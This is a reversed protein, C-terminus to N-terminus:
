AQRGVIVEGGGGLAATEARYSEPLGPDSGTLPNEILRDISGDRTSM